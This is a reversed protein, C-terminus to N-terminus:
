WFEYRGRRMGNAAYYSYGNATEEANEEGYGTEQHGGDYTSEDYGSDEYGSREYGGGEYYGEEDKEPPDYDEPGDDYRRTPIRSLIRRHEIEEHTVARAMRAQEALRFAEDREFRAASERAMEKFNLGTGAVVPKKAGPLAPFEAEKKKPPEQRPTFHPHEANVRRLGSSTMPPAWTKRQKVTTWETIAASM